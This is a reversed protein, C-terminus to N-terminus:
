ILSLAASQEPRESASGLTYGYIGGSCYSNWQAIYLSSYLELDLPPCPARRPGVPMVPLSVRAISIFLISFLFAVLMIHDRSLSQTPIRLGHM